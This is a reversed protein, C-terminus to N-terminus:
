KVKTIEELLLKFMKMCQYLQIQDILKKQISKNKIINEKKIILKGKIHNIKNMNKQNKGIKSLKKIKMKKM